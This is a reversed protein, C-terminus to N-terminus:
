KPTSIGRRFEPSMRSGKGTQTEFFVQNGNLKSRVSKLKRDVREISQCKKIQPGSIYDGDAAVIENICVAEDQTLAIAVGDVVVQPPDISVRVRCNAVQADQQPKGGNQLRKSLNQLSTLIQDVSPRRAITRWDVRDGPYDLNLKHAVDMAARAMEFSGDVSLWPLAAQASKVFDLIPDEAGLGSRFTRLRKSLEKARTEISSYFATGSELLECLEMLGRAIESGDM